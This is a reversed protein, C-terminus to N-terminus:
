IVKKDNNDDDEYTGNVIFLKEVSKEEWVYWVM